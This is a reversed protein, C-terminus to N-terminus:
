SGEKIIFSYHTGNQCTQGEFCKPPNAIVEETDYQNFQLNWLETPHRAWQPFLLGHRAHTWFQQTQADDDGYQCTQKTIFVDAAGESELALCNSADDALQLIVPVDEWSTHAPITANLYTSNCPIAQVTQAEVNTNPYKTLLEANGYAELV